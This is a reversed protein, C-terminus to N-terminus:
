LRLMARFRKKYYDDILMNELSSYNAVDYVFPYGADYFRYRTEDTYFLQGLTKIQETTYCKSKFAKRAVEIMKDDDGAGVMRKRLKNLDNDSAMGNCNSNYGVAPKEAAATTTTATATNGSDTKVPATVAANTTAADTTVPAASTVQEKPKTYFPNSVTKGNDATATSDDPLLPKSTRQKRKSSKAAPAAAAVTPQTLTPTTVTDAVAVAENTKPIFIKVTDTSKSNFDLFTVQTGENKSEQTAKIVGRTAAEDAVTNTTEPEATEVPKTKGKKVPAAAATTPQTAAPASDKKVPEQATTVPQTQPLNNAPPAAAPTTEKLTPDDVVQALMDGFQGAAPNAAPQKAADAPQNGAPKVAHTAMVTQMTQLNVLAWGKDGMNKLGFGADQDQLTVSFTQVPYKKQPFVVSFTHAGSPVQAIILYGTNSSNYRKKEMVVSFPEKSDSQIYMFHQQQALAFVQCCAFVTVFLVPKLHSLLWKM